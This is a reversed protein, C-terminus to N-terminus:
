KLDGEEDIQQQLEEQKFDKILKVVDDGTEINWAKVKLNRFEQRLTALGPPVKDPNGSTLMEYIRLREDIASILKWFKTKYGGDLLGM